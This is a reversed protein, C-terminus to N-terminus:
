TSSPEEDSLYLCFPFIRDIPLMDTSYVSRLFPFTCPDHKSLFSSFPYSNHFSFYTMSPSFYSLISSHTFHVLDHSFIVNSLLSLSCGLLDGCSVTSTKRAYIQKRPSQIDTHKWSSFSERHSFRLSLVCLFCAFM